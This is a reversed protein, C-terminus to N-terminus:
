FSCSNTQIPNSFSTITKNNGLDVLLSENFRIIQIPEVLTVLIFRGSNSQDKIM